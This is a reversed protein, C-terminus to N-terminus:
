FTFVRVFMCDLKSGHSGKCLSREKFRAGKRERYTKELAPLEYFACTELNSDSLPSREQKGGSREKM